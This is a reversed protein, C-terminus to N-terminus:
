GKMGEGGAACGRGTGAGAAMDTNQSTGWAVGTATNLSVWSKLLSWHGRFTLRPTPPLFLLAAPWLHYRTASALGVLRSILM